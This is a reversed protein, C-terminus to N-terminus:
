EHPVNPYYYTWQKKAGCQACSGFRNIFALDAVFRQNGVNIVVDDHENTEIHVPTSVSTQVQLEFETCQCAQCQFVSFRKETKFVVAL